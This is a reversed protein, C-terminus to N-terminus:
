RSPHRFFTHLLFSPVTLPKLAILALLMGFLVGASAEAGACGAGASCFGCISRPDERKPVFGALPELGSFGKELVPDFGNEFEEFGKALAEERAAFGACCGVCGAGSVDEVASRGSVKAEFARMADGSGAGM